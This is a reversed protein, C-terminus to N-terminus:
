TTFVIACITGYLVVACALVGGIAICPKTSCRESQQETFRATPKQDPNAIVIQQLIDSTPKPAETPDILQILESYKKLGEKLTSENEKLCILRVKGNHRLQETLAYKNILGRIKKLEENYETHFLDEISKKKKNVFNDAKLHKLKYWIVCEEEEEEEDEISEDEQNEEENDDNSKKTPLRIETDQDSESDSEDSNGSRMAHLPFSILMLLILVNM